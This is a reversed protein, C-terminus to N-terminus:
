LHPNEVLNKIFFSFCFSVGQPQACPGIVDGVFVSLYLDKWNKLISVVLSEADKSSKLLERACDAPSNHSAWIPCIVTTSPDLALHTRFM